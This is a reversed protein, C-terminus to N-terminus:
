LLQCNANSLGAAYLDVLSWVYYMLHLLWLSGEGESKESCTFRCFLLCVDHPSVSFVCVCVSFSNQGAAFGIDAVVVYSDDPSHIHTHGLFFGLEQVSLDLVVASLGM